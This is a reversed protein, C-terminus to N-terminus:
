SERMSILWRSAMEAVAFGAKVSERTSVWFEWKDPVSVGEPMDLTVLVDRSSRPAIVPTSDVIIVWDKLEPCLYLFEPKDLCGESKISYEKGSSEKITMVSPFNQLAIQLSILENLREADKEKNEKNIPLTPPLTPILWSSGSITAGVDKLKQPNPPVPIVSVPRYYGDAVYDPIRFSIDFMTGHRYTVDIEREQSPILGSVLISNEKADYSDLVLSDHKNKSSLKMLAPDGKLPYDLVIICSDEDVATTVSVRDTTPLDGNGNHVTIPYEAQGGPYFNAISVKGPSIWTRDVPPEGVIPIYTPSNASPVTAIATIPSATGDSDSDGGSVGCGSVLGLLLVLVAVVFISRSM